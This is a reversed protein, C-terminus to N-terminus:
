LRVGPMAGASLLVSLNSFTSHHPIEQDFSLGAFWRWALPIRLQEAQKRESSIGGYLYSILLILLREPDISPRHQHRNRSM